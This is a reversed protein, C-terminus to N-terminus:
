SLCNHINLPSLLTELGDILGYTTNGNGVKKNLYFDIIDGDLTIDRWFISFRARSSIADYKFHLIDKWYGQVASDKFKIIWKALLTKNMIDLNMVGLCGQAKDKCV